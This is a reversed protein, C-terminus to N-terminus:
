DSYKKHYVPSNEFIVFDCQNALFRSKPKEVKQVVDEDIIEMVPVILNEREDSIRIPPALAVCTAKLTFTNDEFVDVSLNFHRKCDDKFWILKKGRYDDPNYKPCPLKASKM